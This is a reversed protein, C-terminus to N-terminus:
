TTISPMQYYIDGNPAGFEQYLFGLISNSTNPEVTSPGLATHQQTYPAIYIRKAHPFSKSLEASDRHGRFDHLLLRSHACLLALHIRTDLQVNQSGVFPTM